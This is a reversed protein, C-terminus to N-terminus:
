DFNVFGVEGKVTKIRYFRSTVGLITVVEGAKLQRIERGKKEPKIRLFHKGKKPVVKKGGFRDISFSPKRPLKDRNKLFPLPDRAGNRYIGFHLHSPTNKANGTNGVTGVEDGRYVYDGEEVLQEKLHAYYYSLGRGEGDRIWVTKGGIGGDRVRSVRGETVALLPTGRPAFIDNGEHKRRGGDRRDGWFSMIAKSDKGEVPFHLIPATQLQLEIRQLQNPRFQVMLLLADDDGYYNEFIIEQTLTDWVAIPRKEPKNRLDYNKLGFLEVFAFDHIANPSHIRLKRGGKLEFRWAFVSNELAVDASIIERHPLNIILSDEKAGQYANEWKLIRSESLQEDKKLKKLYLERPSKSRFVGLIIDGDTEYIKYCLFLSALFLLLFLLIRLTRNNKTNKM